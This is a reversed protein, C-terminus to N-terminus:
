KGSVKLRFSCAQTWVPFVSQAISIRGFWAPEKATFLFPWSLSPMRNEDGNSSFTVAMRRHWYWATTSISWLRATVMEDHICIWNTIDYVTQESLLVNRNVYSRCFQFYLHFFVWDQNYPISVSAPLPSGMPHPKYQIAFAWPLPKVWITVIQARVAM